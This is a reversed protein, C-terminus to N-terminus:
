AMMECDSDDSEEKKKEHKVKVGMIHPYVMDQLDGDDEIENEELHEESMNEEEVGDIYETTFICEELAVNKIAMLDQQNGAEAIAIRAHHEMHTALYVKKTFGKGCVNCRFKKEGTHTRVHVSLVHAYAFSKGCTSCRYPREGTHTREHKIRSGFDSFRRECYQCAYPKHGTHVRMHRRLEVASVFAKDCFECNFPRDNNHRRMHANLAHQYKYSNGCIDCIKTPRSEPSLFKRKRTPVVAVAIPKLVSSKTASHSLSSSDSSPLKPSTELKLRSNLDGITNEDKTEIKHTAELREVTAALKLTSDPSKKPRGRGRKSIQQQSTPPTNEAAIFEEDSESKVDEANLRQTSGSTMTKEENSAEQKEVKIEVIEGDFQDELMEEVEYYDDLVVVEDEQDTEPEETEEIVEADCEKEVVAQQERHPDLAIETEIPIKLPVQDMQMPLIYTKTEPQIRKIKLGLPIKIKHQELEYNALVDEQQEITRFVANAAECNQRFRYAAALDQLCKTCIKDPLKSDPSISLEACCKTIKESISLDTADDREFVSHLEGDQLCVVCVLNLDIILSM